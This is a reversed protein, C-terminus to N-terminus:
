SASGCLNDGYGSMSEKWVLAAAIQAWAANPEIREDALLHLDTRDHEVDHAETIGAGMQWRHKAFGDKSWPHVSSAYAAIHAGAPLDFDAIGEGYDLLLM